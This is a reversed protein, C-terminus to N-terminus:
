GKFQMRITVDADEIRGDDGIWVPEALLKLTRIGLAPFDLGMSHAIAVRSGPKPNLGCGIESKGLKLHHAIDWELVECEHRTVVWCHRDDCSGHKEEPFFYGVVYGAEFGASRLSAILYANIDVCSGEALGCGLHPIEDHDDYYRREPHGYTFRMAVDNVIAAVAERSGNAHEAVYRADQIVADAAKTYRNPRHRFLNEPYGPGEAAYSYRLCVSAVDGCTVLAAMQGTGTEGTLEFSGGSVSFGLPTQHPTPMGCPALMRHGARGATAVTVEVAVQM